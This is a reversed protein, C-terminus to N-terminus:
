EIIILKNLDIKIQFSGSHSDCLIIGRNESVRFFRMFSIQYFKPNNYINKVWMKQSIKFIYIDGSLSKKSWFSVCFIDKNMHLISSFTKHFDVYWRFVDINNQIDKLIIEKTTENIMKCFLAYNQRLLSLCLLDSENVVISQEHYGLTDISQICITFSTAIPTVHYQSFLCDLSKKPSCHKLPNLNQYLFDVNLFPLHRLDPWFYSGLSKTFLIELHKFNEKIPPVFYFGINELNTYDVIFYKHSPPEDPIEFISIHHPTNLKSLSSPLTINKFHFIDTFVIDSVKRYFVVSENKEDFKSLFVIYRENGYCFTFVYCGIESHFYPLLSCQFINTKFHFIDSNMKRKLEWLKKATRVWQNIMLDPYDHRIIDDSLKNLVRCSRLSKEDNPLYYFINSLILHIDFIDFFM